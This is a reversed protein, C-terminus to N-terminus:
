NNAFSSESRPEMSREEDTSTFSERRSAESPTAESVSVSNSVTASPPVPLPKKMQQNNWSPSAQAAPAPAPAPAPLGPLLVAGPPLQVTERKAKM